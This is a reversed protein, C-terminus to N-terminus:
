VGDYFMGLTQPRQVITAGGTEKWAQQGRVEKETQGEQDQARLDTSVAPSRSGFWQLLFPLLTNLEFPGSEGIYM